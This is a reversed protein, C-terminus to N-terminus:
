YRVTSCSGAAVTISVEGRFPGLERYKQTRGKDEKGTVSDPTTDGATLDAYRHTNESCGELWGGGM